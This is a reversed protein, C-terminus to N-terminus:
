GADEARAAYVGRVFAATPRDRLWDMLARAADPMRDPPPLTVGYGPPQVLPAVSASLALDGLTLRYGALYPRGDALRRDIREVEARVGREAEAAREPGLKLLLAFLKRLAPYLPRTLRAEHPPVSAAFVPEMLARDPLLHFYLFAAVDLALQGNYRHVDAVVQPEGPPALRRDPLAAADFYAAIRRPGTLRVGPGYLIPVRGYGGRRIALLSAWGFLRDDERYPVRHWRLVLRAFESDIMPAFTLLTYM